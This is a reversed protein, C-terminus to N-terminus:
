SLAACFVAEAEPGDPFKHQGSRFLIKDEPWAASLLDIVLSFPRM